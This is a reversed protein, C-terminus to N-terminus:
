LNHNVWAGGCAVDAIVEKTALTSLTQSAGEIPAIRDCIGLNMTPVVVPLTRNSLLKQEFDGHSNEAFKEKRNSTHNVTKPNRTLYGQIDSATASISEYYVDNNITM